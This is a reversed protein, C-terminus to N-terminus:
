RRIAPSTAASAPDDSVQAEVVPKRVDLLEVGIVNGSADYDVMVSDSLEQTRASTHPVPGLYIYAARADPDYTITVKGEDAWAPPRRRAIRRREADEAVEEPTVSRLTDGDDGSRAGM